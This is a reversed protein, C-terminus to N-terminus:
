SVARWNEAYQEAEYVGEKFYGLRVGIQLVTKMEKHIKNMLDEDEQSFPDDAENDFKVGITEAIDVLVDSNGYPRKPNVCPAGFECDDWSIYMRKLLLIHNSTITFKQKFTM